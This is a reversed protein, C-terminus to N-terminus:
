KILLIDEYNQMAELFFRNKLLQFGVIKDSQFTYKIGDHATGEKKIGAFVTNYFDTLKALLQVSTDGFKNTGIIYKTPDYDGDVLKKIFTAINSNYAGPRKSLYGESANYFNILETFTQDSSVDDATKRDIGKSFNASISFIKGANVNTNGKLPQIIAM